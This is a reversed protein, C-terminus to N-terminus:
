EFGTLVGVPVIIIGKLKEDNILDIGSANICSCKM